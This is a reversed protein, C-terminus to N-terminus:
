EVVLDDRLAPCEPETLTEPLRNVLEVVSPEIQRLVNFQAEEEPTRANDRQLALRALQLNEFATVVEPRAARYRDALGQTLSRIAVCEAQRFGPTSGYNAFLREELTRMSDAASALDELPLLGAVLAPPVESWALPIDDAGYDGEELRQAVSATNAYWDLLNYLLDGETENLMTAEQLELLTRQADSVLQEPSAGGRVERNISELSFPLAGPYRSFRVVKFVMYAADRYEENNATWYLRGSNFYLQEAAVMASILTGGERAGVIIFDGAILLNQPVTSDQVTEVAVFDTTMDFVQTPEAAADLLWNVASVGISVIESAVPNARAFGTREMIRQAQEAAWNFIQRALDLDRISVMLFRFQLPENRTRFTPTIFTSDYSIHSGNFSNKLDVITRYSCENSRLANSTREPPLDFDIDSEPIEECNIGEPVIGSIEAILGINRANQNDWPGLYIHELKIGFYDDSTIAERPRPAPVVDRGTLTTGDLSRVTMYDRVTFANVPGCAALSTCLGLGLAVRLLVSCRIRNM